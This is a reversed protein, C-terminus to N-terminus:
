RSWFGITRERGRQRRRRIGSRLAAKPSGNRLWLHRSHWRFHQLSLNASPGLARGCLRSSVAISTPRRHHHCWRLAQLWYFEPTLRRPM